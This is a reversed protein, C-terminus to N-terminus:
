VLGEHQCYEEAGGLQTQGAILQDIIRFIRIARRLALQEDQRDVGQAQREVTRREGRKAQFVKRLM